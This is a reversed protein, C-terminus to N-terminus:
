YRHITARFGAANTIGGLTVRVNVAPGEFYPMNRSVLYTDAANFAGNLINYYNVGDPSSQVSVTGLVGPVVDAGQANFFRVAIYALDYASGMPPSVSTGNAVSGEITFSGPIRNTSM